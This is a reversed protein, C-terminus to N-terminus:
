KLQVILNGDPDIYLLVEDDEDFGSALARLESGTVVVHRGPVEFGELVRSIREHTVGRKRDHEKVTKIALNMSRARAFERCELESAGESYALDLATMGVSVDKMSADIVSLTSSVIRVISRLELRGGRNRRAVSAVLPSDPTLDRRCELYRMLAHTTTQDLLIPGPQPRRGWGKTMLVGTAEDVLFDRVDAGVIETARVFCRLIMCIVAYDRKAAESAGPAEASARAADLVRRADEPKLAQKEPSRGDIVVHQIPNVCMGQGQLWSYFMKAASCYMRATAPALAALPGEVWDIIDKRQALLFPTGSDDLFAALNFVGDAYATKTKPRLGVDEAYEDFLRGVEGRDRM